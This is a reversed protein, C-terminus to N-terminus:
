DLGNVVANDMCWQLAKSALYYDKITEQGGMNTYLTDKDTVGLQSMMTQVYQDFGESDITLGEKMAVALFVYEERANEDVSDDVTANGTVKNIVIEQKLDTEHDKFYQAYQQKLYNTKFDALDTCGFKDQVIADTLTDYTLKTCIFNVTFRFVVAQGALDTAGYDDPFTVNSDVTSGVTAGVLGSTFGDIYGTGQVADSNGAVDVYVDSATGGDFATGDKLGQYDINVIDDEAVTTKTDDRYFGNEGTLLNSDCFAKLTDEDASEADPFNVEVGKYDGLTVLEAAKKATETMELDEGSASSDDTHSTDTSSTDSSDTTDKSDSKKSGCSALLSAATVAALVLALLKMNKM